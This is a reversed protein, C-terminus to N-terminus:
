KLAYGISLMLLNSRAGDGGIASLGLDFRAGVNLGSEMEYIVGLPFSIVQNHIDDIFNRERGDRGERHRAYVPASFAFGAIGKFGPAFSYSVMAPIKLYNIRVYHHPRAGRTITGEQSFLMEVIVGLDDSLPIEGYAGLHFGPRFTNDGSAGGGQLNSINLGGRIGAKIDLDQADLKTTVFTLFLLTSVFAKTCKM